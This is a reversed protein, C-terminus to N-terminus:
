LSCILDDDQFHGHFFGSLEVLRYTHAENIYLLRIVRYVSFEQPFYASLIAQGLFYDAQELANM